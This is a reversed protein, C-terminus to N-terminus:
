KQQLARNERRLVEIIDELMEIEEELTKITKEQYDLLKQFNRGQVKEM